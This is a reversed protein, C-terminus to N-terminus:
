PIWIPHMFDDERMGRSITIEITHKEEKQKLTTMLATTNDLIWINKPDNRYLTLYNTYLEKLRDQDWDMIHNIFMVHVDIKHDVRWIIVLQSHTNSHHHKRQLKYILATTFDHEITQKRFSAETTTNADVKHDPPIHWIVHHGIYEPSIL